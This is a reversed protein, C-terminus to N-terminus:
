EGLDVKGVLHELRAKFDDIDPIEVGNVFGFVGGWDWKKHEFVDCEAGRVVIWRQCVHAYKEGEYEVKEHTIGEPYLEALLDLVPRNAIAGTNGSVWTHGANQFLSDFVTLRAVGSEQAQLPAQWPFMVIMGLLILAKKMVPIM